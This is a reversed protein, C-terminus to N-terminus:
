AGIRVEEIRAPHRPDAVDVRRRDGIRLEGLVHLMGPAVARRTGLRLGDPEVNRRNRLREHARPLRDEPLADDVVRELLEAADADRLRDVAVVSPRLPREPASLLPEDLLAVGPPGLDLAGIAEVLPLLRRGDVLRHASP